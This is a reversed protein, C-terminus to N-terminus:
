LSAIAFRTLKEGQPRLQRTSRVKRFLGALTGHGGSRCSATLTLRQRSESQTRTM